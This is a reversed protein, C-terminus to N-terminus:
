RRYAENAREREVAICPFVLCGCSRTSASGFWLVAVSSQEVSSSAVHDAFSSEVSIRLQRQRVVYEETAAGM